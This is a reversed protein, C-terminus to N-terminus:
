TVDVWELEMTRRASGSAPSRSDAAGGVGSEARDGGGPKQLLQVFRRAARGLQKGRRYLIGLPRVLRQGAIPIAVLTGAEVEREITPQPLLSVGADIEIARKITEINDFEMVVNVEAGCAALARDLQHRIELDTVFAVVDSGGLEKLCVSERGALRHGPACVLVMPEETWLVSRITRKAKPYSVLGLDAEDNQVLEYVREPHQYELRVNAKPYKAMFEQV